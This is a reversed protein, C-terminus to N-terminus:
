VYHQADSGEDLPTGSAQEGYSAASAGCQWRCEALDWFCSATHQHSPDLPVYPVHSRPTTTPQPAM